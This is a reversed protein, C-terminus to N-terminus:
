DPSVLSLLHHITRSAKTTVERYSEFLCRAVSCIAAPEGQGKIQDLLAIISEERKARGFWSTSSLLDHLQQMLAQAQESLRWMPTELSSASFPSFNAERGCIVVAHRRRNAESSSSCCSNCRTVRGVCHATAVARVGVVAVVKGPM